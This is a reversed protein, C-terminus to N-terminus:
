PPPRETASYTAQIRARAADREDNTGWGREALAADLQCDPFHPRQTSDAECVPCHGKGEVLLLAVDVNTM